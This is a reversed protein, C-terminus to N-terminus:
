PCKERWGVYRGENASEGTEEQESEGQGSLGGDGSLPKERLVEVPVRAVGTEFEGLLAARDGATERTDCEGPSKGIAVQALFAIGCVAVGHGDVGGKRFTSQRSGGDQGVFEFAFQLDGERRGQDLRDGVLGRSAVLEDGANEIALERRM